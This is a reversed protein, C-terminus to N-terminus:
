DANAQLIQAAASARLAEALVPDHVAAAEQLRRERNAVEEERQELESEKEQQLQVKRLLRAESEDLFAEREVLAQRLERM